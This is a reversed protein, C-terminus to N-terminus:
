SYLLSLDRWHHGYLLSPVQWLISLETELGRAYIKEMYNKSFVDLTKLKRGPLVWAILIGITM